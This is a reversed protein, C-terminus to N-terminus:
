DFEVVLISVDDDFPGPRMGTRAARLLREPEPVGPVPLAAIAPLFDQLKRQTGDAAVTEFAGDSFLTLRAGTAVAASDARFGIGPMMGVAPNRTGLSVPTAGASLLYGPHHGAAAFDLRRASRHFLGYWASFFLGSQEEMQFTANLEALVAAPAAEGPLSLAAARQRLLNMVSAALLASGAGHGAVDMMFVAFRDADLWRFGFADGGVRGSPVFRWDARVPGDAIPPPLLAQVYANARDLERELEAAHRMEEADGRQYHLQFPGVRLTAGPALPRSGLVREGDLWTGNTSGLDTLTALDGAIALLCHSRSVEPDDLVVACGPLRGIRAEGPPLVFRRRNGDRDAVVVAHMTVHSASGREGARAVMTSEPDIQCTQDLDSLRLRPEM